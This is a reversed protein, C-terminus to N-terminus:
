DGQQVLEGAIIITPRKPGPLVPPPEPAPPLASPAANGAGGPGSEGLGQGSQTEKPIAGANEGTGQLTGESLSTEQDAADFRDTLALLAKLARADGTAAQFVLTEAIKTLADPTQPSGLTRYHRKLAQEIAGRLRQEFPAPKKRRGGPNGSQGKQFRTQVPPKGYGVAYDRKEM